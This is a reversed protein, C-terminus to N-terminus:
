SGSGAEVYSLFGPVDHHNPYDVALEMLLVGNEFRSYLFDLEDLMDAPLRTRVGAAWDQHRTPPRHLVGLSLMMEYIPSSQFTIMSRSTDAETRALPAM